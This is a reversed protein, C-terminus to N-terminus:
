KIFKLIFLDRQKENKFSWTTDNLSIGYGFESDGWEIIEQKQEQTLEDKEFQVGPLRFLGIEVLKM